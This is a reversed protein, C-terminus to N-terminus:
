SDGRQADIAERERVSRVRREVARCAEEHSSAEGVAGLAWWIWGASLEPGDIESYTVLGEPEPGEATAEIWKGGIYETVLRSM